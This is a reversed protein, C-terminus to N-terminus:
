IVVTMIKRALEARAMARSREATNAKIKFCGADVVLMWHLFSSKCRLNTECLGGGTPNWYARQYGLLTNPNM